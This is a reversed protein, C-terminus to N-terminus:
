IRRNERGFSFLLISSGVNGDYLVGHVRFSLDISCRHCNKAAAKRAYWPQGDFQRYSYGEFHCDYVWAAMDNAISWDFFDNTIHNIRCLNSNWGSATSHIYEDAVVADSGM